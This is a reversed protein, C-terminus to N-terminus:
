NCWQQECPEGDNNGDMQTNPCNQVFYVAEACSTMQACQTRGDCAFSQGNTADARSVPVSPTITSLNSPVADFAAYRQYGYAAIAALALVALRLSRPSASSNRPRALPTSAAKARGPRSVNGARRRGDPGDQLDFAIMEGVSPRIGDRPFASVHVFVEEGSHPLTVFGFGREDNWKSLTGHTRM